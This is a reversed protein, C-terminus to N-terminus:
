SSELAELKKLRHKISPIFISAFLLFTIAFCIVAIPREMFIIFSGQSIIMTQRLNKEMIPGLVFALLLPAPEYEFKRMIYGVIGFGLMIKLDLTSSNISYAGIICFILILPFLIRHPIELVKVWIWILPLNLVVLMVNGIYMSAIVGWFIDAHEKILFPGPQIGHILLGAFLMAVAANPPIGLAFLPIFSGGVASNNAAEPGAVGAIEGKGFREPHKSLRKEVVYSMFSSIVAGGGPLIGLFFGLISGRIIPWSSKKWDQINPFLNKVKTKLIERRLDEEINILIESVGFLGMAIPVIGIGDNLENMRFTFRSIGTFLDMGVWSLILGILATIVAKEVSKQALYVVMTIGLCMLAFYEPPGFSLAVSALPTALIMMGIISFTGAIFSGFAAIGLAPGARGQLAMQYGDLCTVVSASEGPINVLISTTSGGYMAGYYLGALMIVTGVPALKFTIPFLIAMAGLPGIGPLVGVLTGILAGVFCLFLNEPITSIYFGHILSTWM